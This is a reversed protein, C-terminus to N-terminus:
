KNRFKWSAPQNATYLASGFSGYLKKYCWRSKKIDKMKEGPAVLSGLDVALTKIKSM